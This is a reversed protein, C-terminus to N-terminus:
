SCVKERHLKAWRPLAAAAVISATFEAKCERRQEKEDKAGSGEDSKLHTVRHRYVQSMITFTEGLSGGISKSSPKKPASHSRLRLGEQLFQSSTRPDQHPFGPM